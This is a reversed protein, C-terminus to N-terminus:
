NASFPVDFQFDRFFGFQCKLLPVAVAAATLFMFRTLRMALFLVTRDTSKGTTAASTTTEILLPSRVWLRRVAAKWTWQDM